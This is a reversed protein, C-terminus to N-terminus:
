HENENENSNDEEVVLEVRTNFEELCHEAITDRLKNFKEIFNHYVVIDEHFQASLKEYSRRVDEYDKM